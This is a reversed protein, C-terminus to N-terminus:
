VPVATRLLFRPFTVTVSASVSGLFVQDTLGILQTFLQTQCGPCLVFGPWVLGLGIRSLAPLFFLVWKLLRMFIQAVAHCFDYGQEMWGDLPSTRTLPTVEQVLAM